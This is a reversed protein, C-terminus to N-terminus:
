EITFDCQEFKLIIVAIKKPTGIKWIITTLVKFVPEMDVFKQENREQMLGLCFASFNIDHRLSRVIERFLARLARLYDDKNVLLDQFIEALMQLSFFFSSGCLLVLLIVQAGLSSESWGLCGGLTILTKATQMSVPRIGMSIQTKAPHMPWKTPKTTSRSLNQLM